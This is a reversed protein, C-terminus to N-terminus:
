ILYLFEVRNWQQSQEMVFHLTIESDYQPYWFGLPRVHQCQKTYLFWKCGFCGVLVFFFNTPCSFLLGCELIMEEQLFFCVISKYQRCYTLLYTCMYHQPPFRRNTRDQSWNKSNRFSEIWILKLSNQVPKTQDGSCVVLIKKFFSFITWSICM